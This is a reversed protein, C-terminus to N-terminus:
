HIIQLGYLCGTNSGTDTLTYTVSTVGTINSFKFYNGAAAAGSSTATGQTLTNSVGGKIYYTTAGAVNISGSIVDTSSSSGVYTILTYTTGANLGTLTVTVNPVGGYSGLAFGGFLDYNGTGSTFGSGSPHDYGGYSVTSESIGSATGTSTLLNSVSYTGNVVYPLSSVNWGSQATAGASLSGILASGNTQYQLGVLQSGGGGGATPTASAENSLGSTGYSNVAAVKYYYMTGNTLGTNTYTTTTLGTVVTTTENGSSTGRYVNYSTAGSSATWSLGVQANGASATLGTPAAPASGGSTNPVIEIGNIGGNGPAGIALTFSSATLATYHVLNAAPLSPATGSGNYTSTAVTWASGGGETTFSYYQTSGGSPTLASTENRGPADIAAYIYVDYKAYPIGSVTLTPPSPWTDYLEGSALKNNGAAPPASSTSAFYTGNASGGLTATTGAGSSDKLAVGSFSAGTLVNWNMQTVTSLGAADTAALAAGAGQFQIAISNAAGSSTPTATAENSYGSAGASNVATVKYYYATGNTLGTDTYTTTTLGTKIATGSEGGASTGRYVNYSTAGSSATFSLSVQANGPTATLGTPAAPISVGATPTATAENSYGSTGSSNTATIRYYYMTGNTLGTNTYSTTTVGTAVTTSENGSSTGRYINYSTAGSSATWSLSVQANGPTAALNTPASPASGGGGGSIPYFSWLQNSIYGANYQSLQTGSVSYYGTINIAMGSNVNVIETTGLIETITWQQSAAGTYTEVDLYAGATTSAGVVSVALNTSPLSLEVNNSGLNTLVWQQTTSGTYSQIQVASGSTAAAAGMYLGSVFSFQFNAPDGLILYTGNAITPSGSAAYTASVTASAATTTYTAIPWHLNDIATTGPTWSAFQSGGAPAASNIPVVSGAPYNGSGTGSNVTLPYTTPNAGEIARVATAFDLALIPYGYRTPHVNDTGLLLGNVSGDSNLFPTYNDVTRTYSLSPVLTNKIYSNYSVIEQDFTASNNFPYIQAVVVITSPSLSHITTVLTNLRADLDTVFQAQSPNSTQPDYQYIIDNAGIELLIINPYDAARGTGNGGTIWYGGQNAAGPNPQFSGNLNATIDSVKYFGYGNHYADNAATLYPTANDNTAGVMTFSFGSTSLDHVLPDRYGGATVTYYDVGDTGSDGLPMITVQGKAEYATFLTIVSILWLIRRLFM